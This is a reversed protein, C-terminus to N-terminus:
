SKVSHFLDIFSGMGVNVASYSWTRPEPVRQAYLYTHDTTWLLGVAERVTKERPCGM